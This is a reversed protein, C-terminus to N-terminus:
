RLSRRCRQVRYIAMLLPEYEDRLTREMDVAAGGVRDSLDQGSCFARGAGTLVIVRAGAEAARVAELLEARMRSNLANMVEPRNLTITAIDAAITLSITQFQM